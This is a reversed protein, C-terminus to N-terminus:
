GDPPVPEEESEAGKQLMKQFLAQRLWGHHPVGAQYEPAQSKQEHGSRWCSHWPQFRWDEQLGPNWM